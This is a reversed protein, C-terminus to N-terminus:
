ERCAAPPCSVQQRGDDCRKVICGDDRRIVECEVPTEGPCTRSETGDSCHRVICGQEDMFRKCEIQPCAGQPNCSDFEYGDACSIIVCDGKIMKRCEVTTTQSPEACRINKCGDEDIYSEVDLKKERCSSAIEQTLEYSPCGDDDSVCMINKCGNRDEYSQPQMGRQECARIMREIEADQPCARRVCRVRRCGQSVQAAHTVPMQLDNYFEYGLGNAECRLIMDKLEEETPCIPPCETLPTICRARECRKEDVYYEFALGRKRCDEIDIKVPPCEWDMACEVDYCVAQAAAFSRTQTISTLRYGMGKEKCEGIKQELEEETPCQDDRVCRIQRCGNADAFSEHTMGQTICRRIAQELEAQSPCPNPTVCEAYRCGGKVYTVYSLGRQKCSDMIKEIESSTPCDTGTVECDIVTCKNEDVRRTPTGGKKRCEDLQSQVDPCASTVTPESCVVIRCNGAVYTTYDLGKAQCEKIAANVDPCGSAQTQGPLHTLTQVPSPKVTCNIVTCGMDDVYRTMSGGKSECEKM